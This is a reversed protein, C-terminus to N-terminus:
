LTIVQARPALRTVEQLMRRRESFHSSTIVRRGTASRWVFYDFRRNGAGARYAISALEDWPIFMYRASAELLVGKATLTVLVMRYWIEYVALGGFGLAALVFVGAQVGNHDVGSEVGAASCGLLLVVRSGRLGWRTFPRVVFSM